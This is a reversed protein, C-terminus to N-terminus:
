EQTFSRNLGVQLVACGVFQGNWVQDGTLEFTWKTHQGDSSNGKGRGYKFFPSNQQPISEFLQIGQATGGGDLQTVQVLSYNGTFNKCNPITSLPPISTSSLVLAGLYSMM